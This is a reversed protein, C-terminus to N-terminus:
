YRSLVPWASARAWPAALAQAIAVAQEMHEATTLAQAIGALATAREDDDILQAVELAQEARGADALVRFNACGVPQSDVVIDVGADNYV